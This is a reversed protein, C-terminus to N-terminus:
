QAPSTAPPEPAAPAEKPQKAAEARAKLLPTALAEFADSALVTEGAPVRLPYGGLRVQETRDYFEHIAGAIVQGDPAQYLVVDGRMLEKGNLNKM